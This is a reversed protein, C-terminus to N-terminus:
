LYSCPRPTLGQLTRKMPHQNACGSRLNGSVIDQTMSLIYVAMYPEMCVREQGILILVLLDMSVISRLWYGKTQASTAQTNTVLAFAKSWGGEIQAHSGAEKTGAPPITDPRTSLAHALRHWATSRKASGVKRGIAHSNLGMWQAPWSTASNLTGSPTGLPSAKTVHHWGAAGSEAQLM